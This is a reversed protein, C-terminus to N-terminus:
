GRNTLCQVATGPLAAVATHCLMACVLLMGATSSAAALFSTRLEVTCM